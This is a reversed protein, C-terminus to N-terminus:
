KMNLNDFRIEQPQSLFRLEVWFGYYRMLRALLCWPVRKRGKEILEIMSVKIGTAESVTLMSLSRSERLHKLMMRIKGVLEERLLGGDDSYQKLDKISEFKVKCM